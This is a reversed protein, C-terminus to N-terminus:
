LQTVENEVEVAVGDLSMKLELDVTEVGMALEIRAESVVGGSPAFLRAAAVLVEAGGAAGTM